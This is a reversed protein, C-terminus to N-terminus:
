QHMLLLALLVLGLAFQSALDTAGGQATGVVAGTQLTQQLARSDQATRSVSPQGAMNWFPNQSTALPGSVQSAGAQAYAPMAFSLPTAVASIM